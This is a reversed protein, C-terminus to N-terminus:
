PTPTPYLFHPYFPLPPPYRILPTTPLPSLYHTLALPAPPNGLCACVLEQKKQLAQFVGVSSVGMLVMTGVNMIQWLLMARTVLGKGWPLSIFKAGLSYTAGQPLTIGHSLM